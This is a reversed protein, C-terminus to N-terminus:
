RMPPGDRGAGAAAGPARASPPPGRRTRHRWRRDRGARPATRGRITRTRSPAGCTRRAGRCGRGSRRGRSPRSAPPRGRRRGARRHQQAPGALRRDRLEEDAAGVDTAAGRGEVGMGVAAERAQEVAGAHRVAAVRDVGGRQQRLPQVRTLHAMGTIGIAMPWAVPRRGRRGDARQHAAIDVPVALAVGRM